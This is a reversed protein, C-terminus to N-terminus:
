SKTHMDEWKVRTPHLWESLKPNPTLNRNPDQKGRNSIDMESIEKTVSISNLPLLRKFHM